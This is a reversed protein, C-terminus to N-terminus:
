SADSHPFAKGAQRGPLGSGPLPDAIKVGKGSLGAGVTNTDSYANTNAHPNAHTNTDALLHLGVSRAERAPRGNIRECSHL